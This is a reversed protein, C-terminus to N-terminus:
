EQKEVKLQSSIHYTIDGSSWEVLYTGFKSQISVVKGQGLGPKNICEVVAGVYYM